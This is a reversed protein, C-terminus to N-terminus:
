AVGIESSKKFFSGPKGPDKKTAHLTAQSWSHRVVGKREPMDCVLIRSGTVGLVYFLFRVLPPNISGVESATAAGSPRWKRQTCSAIPTTQMAIIALRWYPQVSKTSGISWFNWQPREAIWNAKVSKTTVSVQSTGTSAQNTSLYPGRATTMNPPM